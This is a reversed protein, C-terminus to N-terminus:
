VALAQISDPRFGDWHKISGDEREVLIVPTGNYAPNLSKITDFASATERVNVEKAELGLRDLMRKTANCPQCGPQTFLTISM